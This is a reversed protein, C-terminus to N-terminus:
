TVGLGIMRAPIRRLFPFRALLRVAYPPTLRATSDLVALKAVSDHFFALGSARIQGLAGKAIIFGCQWYHGRNLMIFIRGADFRGM